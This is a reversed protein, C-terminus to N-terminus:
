RIFIDPLLFLLFEPNKSNKQELRIECFLFFFNPPPFCLFSLAEILATLLSFNGQWLSSCGNDMSYLFSQHLYASHSLMWKCIAKLQKWVALFALLLITFGVTWSNPGSSSFPIHLVNPVHIFVEQCKKLNTTIKVGKSQPMLEAQKLLPQCSVWM